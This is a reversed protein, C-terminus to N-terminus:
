NENMVEEFLDYIWPDCWEPSKSVGIGVIDNSIIGCTGQGRIIKKYGMRRKEFKGIEHDPWLWECRGWGQRFCLEVNPYRWEFISSKRYKYYNAWTGENLEKPDDYNIRDEYVVDSHFDVNIVKDVKYKNLHSLIEEHSSCLFIPKKLSKVKQLFNRANVQSLQKEYKNAWYDLDISLYTKL